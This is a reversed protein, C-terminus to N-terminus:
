VWIISIKKEQFNGNWKVKMGSYGSNETSHNAKRFNLLKRIKQFKQWSIETGNAVTEFIEFNQTSHYAGVSVSVCQSVFLIQRQSLPRYAFCLVGFVTCLLFRALATCLLFWLPSPSRMSLKFCGGRFIAYMYCNVLLNQERRTATDLLNKAHQMYGNWPKLKSSTSSTIDCRHSRIGTNHYSLSDQMGQDISWFCLERVVKRLSSDDSLSNVREYSIKSGALTCHSQRAVLGRLDFLSQILFTDRSQLRYGAKYM